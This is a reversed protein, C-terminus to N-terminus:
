TFGSNSPSSKGTNGAGISGIPKYIRNLNKSGCQPCVVKDKEAIPCNVTFQNQCDNCKFSYVAM